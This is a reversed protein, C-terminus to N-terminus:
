AQERFVIEGRSELELVFSKDIEFPKDIERWRQGDAEWALQVVIMKEGLTDTIQYYHWNVVGKHIDKQKFYADKKIM